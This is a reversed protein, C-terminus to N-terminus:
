ARLWLDDMARLDSGSQNPFAQAFGAEGRQTFRVARSNEPRIVWGKAVFAALLADALPGTLHMRRESWDLCERCCVGKLAAEPLGFGRLHDMGEQTLHLGEAGLIVFGSQRLSDYLRVGMHGALHHYCSRAHRLEQDKPGSRVPRSSAVAMQDTIDESLAMLSEIVRVVGANALRFYRHRGQTVVCLLGGDVMQGLHGSGTQASVGAVGALEGATLARGDMLRSLMAARGPHGILAAVRAIDPGERM